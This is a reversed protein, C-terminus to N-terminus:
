WIYAETLVRGSLKKLPLFIHDFEMFIPMIDESIFLLKIQHDITFHVQIFFIMHVLDKFFKDVYWSLNDAFAIFFQESVIIM